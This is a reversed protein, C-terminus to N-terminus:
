NLNVTPGLPGALKGKATLQIGLKGNPTIEVVVLGMLISAKISDSVMCNFDSDYRLQPEIDQAMRLRISQCPASPHKM